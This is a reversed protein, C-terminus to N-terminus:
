EVHYGGKGAYRLWTDAPVPIDFSNFVLLKGAPIFRAPTLPLDCASLVYELAPNVQQYAPLACWVPLLFTLRDFAFRNTKESRVFRFTLPGPCRLRQALRNAAAILGPPNVSLFMWPAETPGSAIERAVSWSLPEGLANCVTSVQFAAEPEMIRALLHERGPAFRRRCITKFTDADPAVDMFSRAADTLFVPYIPLNTYHDSDSAPIVTWDLTNVGAIRAMQYFDKWDLDMYIPDPGSFYIGSSRLVQKNEALVPIHASYLPILVVPHKTSGFRECVESIQLPHKELLHIEDFLETLVAGTQRLEDALGICKIQPTTVTKLSRLVGDLATIRKLPDLGPILVNIRDNFGM